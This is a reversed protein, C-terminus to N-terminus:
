HFTINGTLIDFNLIEQVKGEVVSFMIKTINLKNRLSFQIVSIIWIMEPFEVRKGYKLLSFCMFKSLRLATSKGFKEQNMMHGITAMDYRLDMVQSSWAWEALIKNLIEDNKDKQSSLTLISLAIKVVKFHIDMRERYVRYSQQTMRDLAQWAFKFKQSFAPDAIQDASDFM